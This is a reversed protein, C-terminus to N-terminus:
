RRFLAAHHFASPVATPTPEMNYGASVNWFDKIQLRSLRDSQLNLKGPIHEARFLINERLCILVLQRLLHMLDPDRCTQNNIVSILAMNDSQFVVIKDRLRDHWMLVSLVIPYFELTAINLQKYQDDWTGYAWSSGFVLGFGIKSSDTTLHLSDASYVTEKFFFSRGNYQALFTSWVLLDAKTEKNIWHRHSPKSLGVTLDILRRLFPRGPVVVCTTFQLLGILSQIERLTAKKKKLFAGIQTRCKELKDPPLRAEMLITDLEIGVFAMITAPDFTKEVALPVGLIRCMSKFAGLSAKGLEETQTTFLFDDLIHIIEKIGLKVKSIWELSSSFCDFLSCSSAAGMPLCVDYYYKDQWSFGLLPHDQSRIPMLRFASQIDTKALFCGQGVRKIGEIAADITAYSVSKFEQPIGSNVSAGDPFSLHHIMRYEGPVKKPVVGIPSVNFNAFPPRDYPGVIRGLSLEKALKRDVVDPIQRASLLNKSRNNLPPGRYGLDFGATFGAVLFERDSEPYGQLLKNLQNVQIPTVPSTPPLQNKSTPIQPAKAQVSYLQISNNVYAAPTTLNVNLAAGSGM